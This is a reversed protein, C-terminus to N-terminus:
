CSCGYGKGPINAALYLSTTSFGLGEHGLGLPLFVGTRTTSTFLLVLTLNEYPTYIEGRPHDEGVGTPHFATVQVVYTTGMCTNLINLKM